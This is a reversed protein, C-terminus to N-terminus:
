PHAGDSSITWHVMERPPAAAAVAAWLAELDIRKQREPRVIARLEDVLRLMEGPASRAHRAFILDAAPRALYRAWYAEPFISPLEFLLALKKPEISVTAKKLAHFGQRVGHVLTRISDRNAALAAPNGDALYIAGAIATVFVAHTKLWDDMRRNLVVRFGGTEFIGAIHRLRPSLSGGPEGLTTPQEAILRYRVSEGDRQGGAGPFGLLIHEPGVAAALAASGAARNHMFLFTKVGPNCALQPLLDDIQDARVMVLALDYNEAPELRAIAKLTVATVAGDEDNILKIPGRQLESLRTGRALLTVDQGAIALRAGYLSGLVGAGIVVIRM